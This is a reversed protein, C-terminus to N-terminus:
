CANECLLACCAAGAARYLWCTAALDAFMWASCLVAPCPMAYCLVAPLLQQESSGAIYPWTLVGGHVACCPMAYCLMACLVEQESAGADQPGAALSAAQTQAAVSPAFQAALLLLLPGLLLFPLFVTVLFSARVLLDCRDRVTLAQERAAHDGRGFLPAAEENADQTHM